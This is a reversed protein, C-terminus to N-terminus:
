KKVEFGDKGILFRKGDQVVAATGNSFDSVEDYHCSIKPFGDKDIFGWKGDRKVAALGDSFPRM